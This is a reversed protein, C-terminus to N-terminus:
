IYNSQLITYLMNEFPFLSHKIKLFIEELYTTKIINNIKIVKMM